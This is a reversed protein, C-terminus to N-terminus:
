GMCVSTTIPDLTSSEHIGMFTDSTQSTDPECTKCDRGRDKLSIYPCCPVQSGTIGANALTSHLSSPSTAM